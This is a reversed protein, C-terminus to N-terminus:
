QHPRHTDTGTAYRTTGTVRPPHSTYHNHNSATRNRLIISFLERKSSVGLKEYGRSRYTAVTSPKLGLDGAIQELTVGDLIRLIVQRERQTLRSSLEDIGDSLSDHHDKETNAMLQSHRLVASAILPAIQLLTDINDQTLGGQQRNRFLTTTIWKHPNIKITIVLSDTMGLNNYLQKLEVDLIQILSQRHVVPKGIELMPLLSQLHLQIRDHQFLQPAHDFAPLLIQSRKSHSTLSLIRPTQETAFSMVSCDAIEIHPNVLDHIANALTTHDTDGLTHLLRCAAASDIAIGSDDPVDHWYEV